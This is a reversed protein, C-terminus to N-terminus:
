DQVPANSVRKTLEMPIRFFREGHLIYKNPVEVTELHDIDRAWFYIADSLEKNWIFFVSNAGFFKKKREPLQVTDFPFKRGHWMTKVECEILITLGKRTAVLDHAYKDPHDQVQWGQSEIFASTAARAKLDYADFLAPDFPKM